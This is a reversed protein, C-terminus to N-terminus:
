SSELKYHREACPHIDPNFYGVSNYGCCFCPPNKMEGIMFLRDELIKIRKNAALLEGSNVPAEATPMARMEDYEKM